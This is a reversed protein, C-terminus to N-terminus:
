RVPNEGRTDKKRRIAIIVDKKSLLSFISQYYAQRVTMPNHAVLLARVTEIITLTREHLKM